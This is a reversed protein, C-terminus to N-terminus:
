VIRRTICESDPSEGMPWLTLDLAAQWEPITSVKATRPQQEQSSKVQHNALQSVPPLAIEYEWSEDEKAGGEFYEGKRMHELHRKQVDAKWAVYSKYTSQDEPLSALTFEFATAKCKACWTSREPNQPYSCCKSSAKTTVFSGEKGKLHATLMNRIHIANPKLVYPM